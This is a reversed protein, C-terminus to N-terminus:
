RLTELIEIQIVRGKNNLTLRAKYRQGTEMLEACPLARKLIVCQDAASPRLNEPSNYQFPYTKGGMVVYSSTVKSVYGETQIGAAAAGGCLMLLIVAMPYVREKIRM